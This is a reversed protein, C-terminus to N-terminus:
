KNESGKTNMYEEVQERTPAEDSRGVCLLYCVGNVTAEGTYYIDSDIATQIEAELSGVELGDPRLFAM